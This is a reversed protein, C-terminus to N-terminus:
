ISNFEVIVTNGSYFLEHRLQNMTPRCAVTIMICLQIVQVTWPCYYGTTWM